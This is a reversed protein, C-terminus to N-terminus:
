LKNWGLQIIKAYKACRKNLLVVVSKTWKTEAYVGSHAVRVVRGKGERDPM